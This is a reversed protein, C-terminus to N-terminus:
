IGPTDMPVLLITIGKGKPAEPDTCVLLFCWEASPTHLTWIKQDNVVYHDGDLVASTQLSAL